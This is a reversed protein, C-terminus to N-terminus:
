KVETLSYSTSRGGAEDKQLIGRDVLDTIDRLATDPSCKKITAIGAARSHLDGGMIEANRASIISTIRRLPWRQAGKGVTGVEKEIV